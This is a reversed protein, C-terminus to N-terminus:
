CLSKFIYILKTMKILQKSKIKFSVSDFGGFLKEANSHLEAWATLILTPALPNKSFELAEEGKLTHCDMDHLILNYSQEDEPFIEKFIRASEKAHDPFHQKGNEDITKCKPKGCDHFVHYVRAEKPDLAKKQIDKLQLFTKDPINWNYASPGNSLMSYLDRYRNAVDLGHQYISLGSAQECDKM